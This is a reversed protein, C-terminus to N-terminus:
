EGPNSQAAVQTEEEEFMEGEGTKCKGIPVAGIAIRGSWDFSELQLDQVVLAASYGCNQGVHLM